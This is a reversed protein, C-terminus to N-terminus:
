NGNPKVDYYTDCVPCRASLVGNKIMRMGHIQEFQLLAKDAPCKLTGKKLVESMKLQVEERELVIRAEHYNKFKLMRALEELAQQHTIGKERKMKKAVIKFEDLKSKAM